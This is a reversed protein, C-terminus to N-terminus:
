FGVGIDFLEGMEGGTANVDRDQQAAFDSLSGDAAVRTHEAAYRASRVKAWPYFLGLTLVMGLTNGMVLLIYSGFRYDAEFRHMGLRSNCFRYNAIWATFLAFALFYGIFIPVLVVATLLTGLMAPDSGSTASMLAPTLVGMAIGGVIGCLLVVGVCAGFIVYVRKVGGDFGFRTDGFRSGGIAYAIQQRLAYPMLLGLTLMGVIPWLLWFRYADGLSGDFGFRVGRWASNHNRFRLSSHIIWPMLAMLIFFAVIGLLPSIQDSVMYLVLLGFAILRGKLIRIPDALYEFSSGDLRTNGYFYRQTRVKAWASYIGLTVITLAINVIWIRFFESGTGRFEFPVLGGESNEQVQGALRVPPPAAAVRAVAEEMRLGVAMGIANLKACFRVADDESLGHRLVVPKGSFVRQRQAENLGLLDIVRAKVAETDFGERFSGDYTLSFTAQSM